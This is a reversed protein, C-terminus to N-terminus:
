YSLIIVLSRVLHSPFRREIAALVNRKEKADRSVPSWRAGPSLPWFMVIVVKIRGNRVSTLFAHLHVEQRGYTEMSHHKILCVSMNQKWNHINCINIFRCCTPVTQLSSLNTSLGVDVIRKKLMVMLRAVSNLSKVYVEIYVKQMLCIHM